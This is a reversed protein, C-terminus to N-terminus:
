DVPPLHRRAEAAFNPLSARELTGLLGEITFPPRKHAAAQDALAKMVVGPALDLQDILFADPEIVDVDYPKTAEEPFDVTNFTVIAAANARVAAALVHRDKAENTMTDILPEYGTVEADEFFERMLRVVRAAKAPDIREALNDELEALIHVSWLPRYTRVEALRLLTDRLHTGYLVCTDLVVSYAM